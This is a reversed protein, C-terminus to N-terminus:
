RDSRLNYNVECLMTPSRALVLLHLRHQRILTLHPLNSSSLLGIPVSFLYCLLFFCLFPRSYFFPWGFAIPVARVNVCGMSVGLRSESRTYRKKILVVIRSICGLAGNSVQAFREFGDMVCEHARVILQLDNVECYHHVRDPGFSVL